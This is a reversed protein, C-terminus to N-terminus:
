ENKGKRKSKGGTDAANAEAIRTALAQLVTVGPVREHHRTNDDKSQVVGLDKLVALIFGGTNISKGPHVDNFTRATVPDAKALITDFLSIPAWDKCFMGGGSNRSIRLLPENNRPDHGAQFTLLSRETLSQCEAEMDVVMEPAEDETQTNHEAETM